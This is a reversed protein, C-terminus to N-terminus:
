FVHCLSSTGKLIIRILFLVTQHCDLIEKKGNIYMHWEKQLNKELIGVEFKTENNFLTKSSYFTCLKVGSPGLPTKRWFCELDTM